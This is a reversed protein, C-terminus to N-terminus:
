PKPHTVIRIQFSILVPYLPDGTLDFDEIARLDIEFEGSIRGGAIKV